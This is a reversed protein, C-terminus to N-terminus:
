KKELRKLENDVLEIFKGEIYPIFQPPLPKIGKVAEKLRGWKDRPINHFNVQVTEDDHKNMLNGGHKLTKCFRRSM